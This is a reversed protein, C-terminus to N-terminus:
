CTLHIVGLGNLSRGRGEDLLVVPLEEALNALLVEFEVLLVPFQQEGFFLVEDQAQHGDLPGFSQVGLPCQDVLPHPQFRSHQLHLIQSGFEGLCPLVVGLPLELCGDIGHTPFEFPGSQKDHKENTEGNSM